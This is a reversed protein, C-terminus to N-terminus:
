LPVVFRFNFFNGAVDNRTYINHNWEAVVGIGSFQYGILPGLGFNTVISNPVSAGNLTDANFQNEQHVGLGFTWKGITKAFTYDAAFENGSHYNGAATSSSNVPFAFHLDASINWGDHLWSFALDPQVAWFDNGSPLGGRWNSTNVTSTATPLYVELGAKVHFDGFTWALQGPVLITNFTGWNGSGSGGRGGYGAAASTYDFPQAIAVAFDAGLIKLGTSWLVIPVEVLATLGTNPAQKNGPSYLTYQALYNDLVFYVGQPPLAGAALGENVGRLYPDWLQEAWAQGAFTAAGAM